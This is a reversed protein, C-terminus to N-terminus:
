KRMPQEDILRIMLEEFEGNQKMLQAAPSVFEDAVTKMCGFFGYEFVWDTEDAWNAVDVTFAVVDNFDRSISALESIYLAQEPYRAHMEEFYRIAAKAETGYYHVGLYDPPHEAVLHMFEAIWAQGQPDSACSPSVLKNHRQQRLPLVQEFWVDAAKQPSIGKREPENFFHIISNETTSINHWDEGSLNSLDRIMPRFPARANLEPPTWTNWKSLDPTLHPHNANLPNFPSKRQKRVAHPWLLQSQGNSPPVHKTNTWDWLLCRKRIVM